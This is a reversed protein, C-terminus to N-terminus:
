QGQLDAMSVQNGDRRDGLRQYLDYNVNEPLFRVAGDCLLVQGGGPHRSSLGGAGTWVNNETWNPDTIQDLYGLAFM